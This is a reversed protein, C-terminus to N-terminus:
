TKARWPRAKMAAPNTITPPEADPPSPREVEMPPAAAIENAQAAGAARRGYGARRTRSSSRRRVDRRPAARRPAAHQSSPGDPGTSCPWCTPVPLIPSSGPAARASAAPRATIHRRAGRGIPRPLTKGCGACVPEAM